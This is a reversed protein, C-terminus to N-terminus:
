VASAALSMMSFSAAYSSAVNPSSLYLCFRQLNASTGLTRRRPFLPAKCRQNGEIAALQGASLPKLNAGEGQFWLRRLKVDLITLAEIM